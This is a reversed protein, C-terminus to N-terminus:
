NGNVYNSASEWYKLIQGSWKAVVQIGKQNNIPRQRLGREHDALISRCKATIEKHTDAINRTENRDKHLDFLQEKGFLNNVSNVPLLSNLVPKYETIYKYRGWVIARAYYNSEMYVYGGDEPENDGTIAPVLDKGHVSDPVPIEALGCITKFLDIGSVFHRSDTQGKKINCCDGFTSVCFPVKVSEQYLTFKQFMKHQGCSEGHDSTFIIITNDKYKSNKLANNFKGIELDVKEMLRYYYWIYNRWETDSWKETAERIKNHLLCNEKRRCVIQTVTENPDYEFNVPLPPLEGEKVVGMESFSKIQKSQDEFSHLHECIDHPNIFNVQLYFPKEGQYRNLFDVAALSINKDYIDAGGAPIEREGHYLVTFSDELKRGPVHWKGSHFPAYGNQALYSGIDMVDQHINGDNFPVGHESSYLGTVWSARSPCCVPDTCYSNEFSIGNNYIDDINPISLLKQRQELVDYSMEDVTLLVINPKM